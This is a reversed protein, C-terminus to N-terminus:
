LLARLIPYDAYSVNVINALPIHAEEDRNRVPLESDADRVEDMLDFVLKGMVFHGIIGM